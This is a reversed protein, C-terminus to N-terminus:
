AVAQREKTAEATGKIRREDLDKRSEQPESAM